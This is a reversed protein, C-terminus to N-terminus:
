LYVTGVLLYWVKREVWSHAFIEGYINRFQLKLLSSVLSFLGVDLATALLQAILSNQTIEGM